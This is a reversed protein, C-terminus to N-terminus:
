QIKKVSPHGKLIKKIGHPHAFAIELFGNKEGIVVGEKFIAHMVHDGKKITENSQPKAVQRKSVTINELDDIPIQNLSLSQYRPYINSINM